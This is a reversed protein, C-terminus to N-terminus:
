PVLRVNAAQPGKPGGHEGQRIAVGHSRRPYSVQVRDQRQHDRAVDRFVAHRVRVGIVDEASPASMPEIEGGVGPQDEAGIPLGCPVRLREVAPPPHLTQRDDM